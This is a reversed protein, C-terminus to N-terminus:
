VAPTNENTKREQRQENSQKKNHHIIQIQEMSRWGFNIYNNREKETSRGYIFGNEIRLVKYETGFYLFHDGPNLEFVRIFHNM